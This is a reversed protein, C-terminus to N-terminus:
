RGAFAPPRKERWAARGERLDDSRQARQIDGDLEQLDLAGRAIRNLHKKMGLLPIPAMGALKRALADTAQALQEPAVLSTLFGCRLLEDADLRDATLFLRKATDLGLRSVYRELGRRYFHLGLRAAPMFMDVSTTGLRFDCALALDTAGGYVGGNLAAITVPRCDELTDVLAEFGAGERRNEMRGIDFGSCFYKGTGGIILVLAGAADAAKIHRIFEAIEEPGLRNAVEPRRLTITATRGRLELRPPGTEDGAAIPGTM